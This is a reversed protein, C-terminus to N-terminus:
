RPGFWARTVEGTDARVVVEVNGGRKNANTRFRYGRLTRARHVPETWPWGRSEAETRAIEQAREISLKLQPALRPRGLMDRM